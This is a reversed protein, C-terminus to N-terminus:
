EKVLWMAKLKKTIVFPRIFYCLLLMVIMTVLLKGKEFNPRMVDFQGSPSIRTCFIDNGIDCIISTSELNTPLSIIKSGEGMLLNRFHTIVFHDNIPIAAVYPSAMFEKKDSDTMDKEEKRRANLVFKPIFTIQGSELEMIIADVSIGFKTKSLTMTKIIEPFLFSKSVIEPLNAGLLANGASEPNSLRQNPILSEYLEIVAIKTEPVPESSFYSYIIWHEGFILNIPLNFDPKDEQKENVLLQGTLTDIVNIYIEGTDKNTIILAALNPYLYKYSVDRNGLVNAISVPKTSIDKEVFNIIEQNPLLEFSWTHILEGNESNMVYGTVGHKDHDTVYITDSNNINKDQGGLNITAKKGDKSKVLYYDNELGKDTVRKFSIVDNVAVRGSTLFKPNNRNSLDYKEFSGDEAVVVLKDTTPVFDLFKINTLKTKLSWVKKGNHVIDLAILENAETAVILYKSFGFKLNQNEIFKSDFEENNNLSLIDTLVRGPNYGNREMLQLFRKWNMTLRTFYALIPNSTNNEIIMEDLVNEMSKDAIEVVTHANIENWLENRTWENVLEGNNYSQFVYSSNDLLSFVKLSSVYNTSLLVIDKVTAPLIAHFLTLKSEPDIVQILENSRKINELNPKCSPKFDTLDITFNQVPYGHLSEYTELKGTKDNQLVFNASNPIMMADSVKYDLLNRSILSGDTENVYALLTKSDLESLIVLIDDLSNELVCNYTGINQIQWDVTYAEDAFVATVISNKLYFFLLFFITLPAM